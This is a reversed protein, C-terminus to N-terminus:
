PPPLAPLSKGPRTPRRERSRPQARRAIVRWAPTPGTPVPVGGPGVPGAAPASGEPMAGSDRLRRGWGGLVHAPTMWADGAELRLSDRRVVVSATGLLSLQVYSMHVAVPSIDDATIHIRQRYDIGRAALEQTLAILMAGAGAAPEYVTAFPKEELAAVLQDTSLAAALRAVHYPTFFQGNANDAIELGMYTEGLVDRPNETLQIVVHGFAEAFRDMEKDTYGAKLHEFVAEREDFGARDVTNRLSLAFMEVWDTFVRHLSHRGHNAELLRVIESRGAM